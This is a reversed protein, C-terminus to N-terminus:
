DQHGRKSPLFTVAVVAVALVGVLLITMLPTDGSRTSTAIPAVPPENKKSGTSSGSQALAPLAATLCILAAAAVSVM